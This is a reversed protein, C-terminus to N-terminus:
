IWSTAMWGEMEIIEDNTFPTTMWLELPLDMGTMGTEFPTKMWSEVEQNEELDRYEFPATMWNELTMQQEYIVEVRNTRITRIIVPNENTEESDRITWGQLDYMWNEVRSKEKYNHNVTIMEVQPNRKQFLREKILRLQGFSSTGLAVLAISLIIKTTKM